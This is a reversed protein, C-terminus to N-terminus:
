PGALRPFPHLAKKCRQHFLKPVHNCRITGKSGIHPIQDSCDFPPRTPLPANPFTVANTSLLHVTSVSPKQKGMIGPNQLGLLLRGSKYSYNTHRLGTADSALGALMSNAQTSCRTTSYGLSVFATEMCRGGVDWRELTGADWRGLKESCRELPVGPETLFPGYNPSATLLPTPDYITRDPGSRQL